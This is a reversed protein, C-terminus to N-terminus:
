LKLSKVERIKRGCLPCCIIDYTENWFAVEPYGYAEPNEYQYIIKVAKIKKYKNEECYKCGVIDDM